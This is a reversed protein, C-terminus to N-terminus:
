GNLTFIILGVPTMISGALTTWAEEGDNYRSLGVMVAAITLLFLGIGAAVMVLGESRQWVFFILAFFLFNLLINLFRRSDEVQTQSPSGVEVYSRM